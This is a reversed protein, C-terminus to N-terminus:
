KDHEDDVGKMRIGCNPCFNPLALEEGEECHDCNSCYWIDYVIGGDAYGDGEGIWKGQKPEITPASDIYDMCQNFTQEISATLKMKWAETAVKQLKRKLADGDILRM